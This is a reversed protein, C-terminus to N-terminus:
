EFALCGIEELCKVVVGNSCHLDRTLDMSKGLWTKTKKGSCKSGRGSSIKLTRYVEADARGAFVCFRLETIAAPSPWSSKWQPGM